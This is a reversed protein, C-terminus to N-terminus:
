LNRLQLFVPCSFSVLLLIVLFAICVCVLVFGKKELSEMSPMQKKLMPGLIREM